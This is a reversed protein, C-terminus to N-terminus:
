QAGGTAKPANECNSCPIPDDTPTSSIRFGMVFAVNRLQEAHTECALVDKGPWHVIVTANPTHSM